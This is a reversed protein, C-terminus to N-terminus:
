KEEKLLRKKEILSIKPFIRMISRKGNIIFYFQNCFLKKTDLREALFIWSSSQVFLSTVSAFANRLNSFNAWHFGGQFGRAKFVRWFACRWATGKKMQYLSTKLPLSVKELMKRCFLAKVPSVITTLRVSIPFCLHICPASANSSSKHTLKNFLFAKSCNHIQERFFIKRYLVLAWTAYAKLTKLGPGRKSTRLHTWM